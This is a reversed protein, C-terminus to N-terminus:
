RNGSADNFFIKMMRCLKFYFKAVPLILGTLNFLNFKPGFNLKTELGLVQLPADCSAVVTMCYNDHILNNVMANIYNDAKRGNSEGFQSTVVPASWIPVQKGIFTENDVIQVSRRCFWSFLNKGVISAGRQTNMNM